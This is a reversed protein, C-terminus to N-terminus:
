TGTPCAKPGRMATNPSARYEIDSEHQDQRLHNAISKNRQVKWVPLDSIGVATRKSLEIMREFRSGRPCFPDTDQGYTHEYFSVLENVLKM